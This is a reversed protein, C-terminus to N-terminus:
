NLFSKVDIDRAYLEREMEFSLEKGTKLSELYIKKAIIKFENNNYERLYRRGALYDAMVANEDLEQKQKNMIYVEGLNFYNYLKKIIFDIKKIEELVVEKQSKLM